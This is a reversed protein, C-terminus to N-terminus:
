NLLFVAVIIGRSNRNGLSKTGKRTREKQIKSFFKCIQTEEKKVDKFFIHIISNYHPLLSRARRLLDVYM